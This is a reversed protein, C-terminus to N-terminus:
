TISCVFLIKSFCNVTGLANVENDTNIKFVEQERDLGLKVPM